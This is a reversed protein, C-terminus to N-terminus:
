GRGGAASVGAASDKPEEMLTRTAERGTVGASRNTGPLVRSEALGRFLWVRGRGTEFGTSGLARNPTTRLRLTM